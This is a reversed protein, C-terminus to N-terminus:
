AAEGRLANDAIRHANAMITLTFTTAPVDPFVSADVLHVRRWPAVRGLPDSALRGAPREQHPFTGGVHYSKGSAAFTLSPLIPWLDLKPASRLVRRIVERLMPSKAPSPAGASLTLKALADPERPRSLHLRFTPSAWSPLYGIGVSLRRLLQARLRGAARARLPGPLAQDFASNYTYFHIQSLDRGAEDLQLVMNFQNLTFNAQGRPDAVPAASLFPVTFQASEHVEIPTDFIELSGAVLRSTGVAGCAIFVRDATFRELRGTTMERAIVAAGQDNEEVRVALWGDRYHVQPRERLRDFTQSASYVYHWPCGTMCLGARVCASGNMALRARGMVVGHSRLAARHRAYRSLVADSRESLPPVPHSAAHLPFLDALDDVAAAYPIERFVAAYHQAMGEDGIPWRDLTAASFPMAQAGWVNSFGGYAGSILADNVGDRTEVDVRQGLDRFPFNSGYARKEPLGNVRSREPLRSIASLDEPAWDIQEAAAMRVRADDNETELRGGVDLITIRVAPDRTCALAAGAAAPGAGVILVSRTVGFPHAGHPTAADGHGSLM